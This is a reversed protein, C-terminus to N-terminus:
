GTADTSRGDAVTGWIFLVLGACFLGITYVPLTFNVKVSLLYDLGALMVLIAGFLKRKVGKRGNEM